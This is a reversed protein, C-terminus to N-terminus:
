IVGLLKLKAKFTSSRNFLYKSLIAIKPADESFLKNADMNDMIWNLLLEAIDDMHENVQAMIDVHTDINSHAEEEMMSTIMSLYIRSNAVDKKCADIVNKIVGNSKM